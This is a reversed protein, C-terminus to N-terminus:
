AQEKQQCKCKKKDGNAKRYMTYLTATTLVINLVVFTGWLYNMAKSKDNNATM